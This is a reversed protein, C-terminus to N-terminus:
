SKRLIRKNKRQPGQENCEQSPSSRRGSWEYKACSPMGMTPSTARVVVNARLTKRVDSSTVENSRLIELYAAVNQVRCGPGATMNMLEESHGNNWTGNAEQAYGDGSKVEWKGSGRWAVLKESLFTGERSGIATM